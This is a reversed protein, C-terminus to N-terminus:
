MMKLRQKNLYMAHDAREFVDQVKIDKGRQYGSIGGAVTVLGKMKNRLVVLRLKEMLM